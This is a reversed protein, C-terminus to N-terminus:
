RQCDPCPGNKGDNRTCERAKIPSNQDQIKQLATIVEIGAAQLKSLGSWSFQGDPDYSSVIYTLFCIGIIKANVIIHLQTYLVFDGHSHNPISINGGPLLHTCGDSDPAEGDESTGIDGSSISESDCAYLAFLGAIYM